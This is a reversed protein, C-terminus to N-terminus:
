RLNGGIKQAEIDARLEGLAREHGATTALLAHSFLKVLVTNHAYGIWGDTVSDFYKLGNRTHTWLGRQLANATAGGYRVECIYGGGSDYFRYVPHLRGKGQDELVIRSVSQQAREHDFVLINCRNKKEDYILPLVNLSGFGSFVESRWLADIADGQILPGIEKLAPFMRFNKDTSLQLPGDGYAKLSLPFSENTIDNTITVDEENSKARYLDKGVHLSSFDYMYQNIFEAIAVEALDGHTKNGILRMTFINSLTTTILEPNKKILLRLRVSFEKYLSM